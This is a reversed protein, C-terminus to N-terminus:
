RSTYAANSVADSFSSKLRAYEEFTRVVKTFGPKVNAVNGKGESLTGGERQPLHKDIPLPARQRFPDKDLVTSFPGSHPLSASVSRFTSQPAREDEDRSDDLQLDAVQLHTTQPPSWLNPLSKELAASGSPTLGKFSVLRSLLAQKLRHRRILMMQEGTNRMRLFTLEKWKITTVQWRANIKEPNLTCAASIWGVLWLGAPM